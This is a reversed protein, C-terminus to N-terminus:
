RSIAAPATYRFDLQAATSIGQHESYHAAGNNEGTVHPWLQIEQEPEIV